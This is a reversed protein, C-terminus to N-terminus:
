FFLLIFNGVLVFVVGIIAGVLIQMPQHGITEELRPLDIQENAPLRAVLKNIIESHQDMTRRYGTADRVTIFAFILCLAFTTSYIGDILIVESMLAFVFATHSSPMGGYKKLAHWTFKGQILEIILKVLQTFLGALAPLLFIWYNIM